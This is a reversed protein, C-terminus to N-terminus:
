RAPEVDGEADLEPSIKVPRAMFWAGAVLGLGLVTGGWAIVPRGGVAAPCADMAGTRTGSYARDLDAKFNDAGSSPKYGIGCSVTTFGVTATIPMLGFIVGVVFLLAGVGATLLRGPTWNAPM